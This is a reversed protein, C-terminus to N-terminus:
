KLYKDKLYEFRADYLEKDSVNVSHGTLLDAVEPSIDYNSKQAANNREQRKLLSAVYQVVQQLMDDSLQALSRNLDTRLEVATM